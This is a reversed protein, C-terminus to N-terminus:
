CTAFYFGVDILCCRQQPLLAQLQFVQASAHLIFDARRQQVHLSRVVLNGHGILLNTKRCLLQFFRLVAILRANGAAKFYHLRLFGNGARIFVMNLGQILVIYGLKRQHAGQTLRLLPRSCEQSSFLTASGILIEGYSSSSATCSGTGVSTSAGSVSSSRREPLSRRDMVSVRATPNKRECGRALHSTAATTMRRRM